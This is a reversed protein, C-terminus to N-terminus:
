DLPSTAVFRSAKFAEFAIKFLGLALRSKPSDRKRYARRALPSLVSINGRFYNYEDATSQLLGPRSDGTM